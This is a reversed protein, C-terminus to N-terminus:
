VRWQSWGRSNRAGPSAVVRSEKRDMVVEYVNSGGGLMDSM